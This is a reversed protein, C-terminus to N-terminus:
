FAAYLPASFGNWFLTLISMIFLLTVAIQLLINATKGTKNCDLYQGLPSSLLIAVIFSVSFNFIEKIDALSGLGAAGVGFMQGIYAIAAGISKSNFVVWLLLVAVLTYLRNLHLKALKKDFGTYKELTQLLFYLLGWLIFNLSSGHWIGTCLWVALLNFIHRTTTKVRSGGLPIYVYHTFWQTLSIHWRKWFDSISTALYPFNFNEKMSFGFISGMGIAMDSYGSFDMYLQLAYAMAGAWAMLVSNQISNFCLSVLPQLSDAILIKKVFGLAFRFLGYGIKDMSETRSHFEPACEDYRGIPGATIRWFCAIYLATDLLNTRLKKAKFSDAVFSIEQFTFYSLGIPFAISVASNETLLFASLAQNVYKFFLLQMADLVIAAAAISKKNWKVALRAACYNLAISACLLLIYIPEAMAYLGLSALLLVTNRFGRGKWFPNYYVAFLIPFYIGVFSLGSM